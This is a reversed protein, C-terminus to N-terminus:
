GNIQGGYKADHFDISLKVKGSKTYEIDIKGM